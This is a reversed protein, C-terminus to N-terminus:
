INRKLSIRFPPAPNVGLYLSAWKEDSGRPGKLAWVFFGSRLCNMLNVWVHTTCTACELHQAQTLYSLAPWKEWKLLTPPLTTDYGARFRSGNGHFGYGVGGGHISGLGLTRLVTCALALLSASPNEKGHERTTLAGSITLIQRRLNLHYFIIPLFLETEHNSVMFHFYFFYNLADDCVGLIFLFSVKCFYFKFSDLWELHLHYLTMGFSFIM